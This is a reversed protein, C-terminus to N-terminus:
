CGCVTYRICGVHNVQFGYLVTIGHQMVGEGRLSIKREREVHLFPERFVDDYPWWMIVTDAYYCYLIPVSFEIKNSRRKKIVKGGLYNAYFLKLTSIYCWVVAHAMSGSLTTASNVVKEETLAAGRNYQFCVAQKLIYQPQEFQLSSLDMWKQITNAICMVYIVKQDFLLVTNVVMMDKESSRHRTHPSIRKTQQGLDTETIVGFQQQLEWVCVAMHGYAFQIPSAFTVYVDFDM